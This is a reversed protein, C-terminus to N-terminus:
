ELWWEGEWYTLFFNSIKRNSKYDFQSWITNELTYFIHRYKMGSAM